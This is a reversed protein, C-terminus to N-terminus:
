EFNNSIPSKSYIILECPKWGDYYADRVKIRDIIFYNKNLAEIMAQWKSDSKILMADTDLIIYNTKKNVIFDIVNDWPKSVSMHYSNIINLPSAGTNLKMHLYADWQSFIIIGHPSIKRDNFFDHLKDVREIWPPVLNNKNGNAIDKMLVNRTAYRGNGQHPEDWLQNLNNPNPPYYEHILARNKIATNYYFNTLFSAGIFSFFSLLGLLIILSHMNYFSMEKISFNSYYHLLKDTYIAAIIIAPFAVVGLVQDPYRVAHYAFISLGLITLFFIVINISSKNKNILQIASNSLGFFYIVFVIMWMKGYELLSYKEHIFYKYSIFTNLYEPYVGNRAKIYVAFVLLALILISLYYILLKISNFTKHKLDSNLLIFVQTSVYAFLSPFGFDFNWIIGLSLIFAHIFLTYKNTEGNLITTIAYLAYAPFILRIPFVQFYLEYPWLSFAFFTIYTVSIFVIFALVKNKIIRYIGFGFLILTLFLIMAFIITVNLISIGGMLELIPQMFHAYLGYQAEWNVTITKGFYAEVIPSLVVQFNLANQNYYNWDNFIVFYGMIFSIVVIWFSFFIKIYKSFIHPRKTYLFILLFIICSLFITYFSSYINYKEPNYQYLISYDIKYLVIYYAVLILLTKFIIIPKYIKRNLLSKTFFISILMIIFPLSTAILVYDFSPIYNHTKYTIYIIYRLIIAIIIAVFTVMFVINESREETLMINSM